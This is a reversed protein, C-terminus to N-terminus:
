WDIPRTEGILCGSRELAPAVMSTYGTRSRFQGILCSRGLQVAVTTQDARTDTRTRDRTVEMAAKDFGAAVLANVLRRGTPLGEGGAAAEVLVRDFVVLNQAASGDPLFVAPGSSDPGPEPASETPGVPVSPVVACGGLAALGALLAIVALRRRTATM